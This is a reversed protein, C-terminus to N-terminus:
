DGSRFINKLSGWSISERGSLPVYPDLDEWQRIEWLTDGSAALAEPDIQLEFRAGVTTTYLAPSAGGVKVVLEVNENFQWGSPDGPQPGPIEVPSGFTSLSLHVSDVHAAEAFMTEHIQEETDRDWSMPLGPNGICEDENLFFVFGESLCDLYAEVDEAEYALALKALAAQPSERDPYGNGDGPGTSSSSCGVVLMMAAMALATKRTM